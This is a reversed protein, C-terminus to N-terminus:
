DLCGRARKAFDDIWDDSDCARRLLQNSPIIQAGKTQFRQFSPGNRRSIEDCRTSHKGVSFSLDEIRNMLRRLESAPVAPAFTEQSGTSRFWCFVFPAVEVEISTGSNRLFDPMSRASGMVVRLESLAIDCTPADTLLSDREIERAIRRGIAPPGCRRQGHYVSPHGMERPKQSFHAKGINM